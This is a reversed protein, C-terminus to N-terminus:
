ASPGGVGPSVVALRRGGYDLEYVPYDGGESRGMQVQRASAGGSVVERIVEQFFCLVCHEAIDIPKIIRTPEIIAIRGTDFELLPITDTDRCARTAPTPTPAFPQTEPTKM